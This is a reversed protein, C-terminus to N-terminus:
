IDPPPMTRVEGLSSQVFHGRNPILVFAKNNLGLCSQTNKRSIILKILITGSALHSEYQASIVCM